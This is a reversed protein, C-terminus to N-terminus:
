DGPIAGRVTEPPVFATQGEILARARDVRDWVNWLLVGRVRGEADLYYVVGEQNPDKWDAVTTLRPDLLGVAEFGKDFLDSYFFPLYDHHVLAGAMSRGAAEGMANANDEHEVRVFRGLASSFVSAVDGAAYVDPASTMLSADVRIGDDVQIGAAQALEVRPRIGLGAIVLDVAIEEGTGTELVTRGGDVRAGAVTTEPHVIVGRSRYYATVDDSLDRPLVRGLIGSELMIQHVQKNQLTLAAAMESGIFGGGIVAVERANTARRVLRFYDALTRYYVVSDPLSPLRIPAGGTALLCRQYRFSRGTHDTLRHSSPDLAVVRTTLYLDVDQEEYDMRRWIQEVRDGKFLSKSLPPRNYPMFPEESLLAIRGTPDVSRIGAVAADATMGGGVIVYQYEADQAM